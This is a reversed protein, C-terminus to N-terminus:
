KKPRFEEPLNALLLTTALKLLRNSTEKVATASKDFIDEKKNAPDFMPPIQEASMGETGNMFTQLASQFVNPPVQKKGDIEAQKAAMGAEFGKAESEHAVALMALAQLQAPPIAKVGLKDALNPEPAPAATPEGEKGGNGKSNNGWAEIIKQYAPDTM